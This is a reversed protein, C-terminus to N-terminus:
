REGSLLAWPGDGAAVIGVTHVLPTELTRADVVPQPRPEPRPEVTDGEHDHSRAPLYLGVIVAGLALAAAGIVFAISMGDAFGKSAVDALVRGPEGGVRAAAEMAAGIQDTIARAQEAPIPAGAIADSVRPRYTSSMVSGLVAVGLAGGIERTTDNV